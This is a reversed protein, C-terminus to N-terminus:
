CTCPVDEGAREAIMEVLEAFTLGYDEALAALTLIPDRCDPDLSQIDMQFRMIGHHKLAM